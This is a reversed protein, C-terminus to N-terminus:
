DYDVGVLTLGRAPAAGRSQDRDRATLMQAGQEVVVYLGAPLFLIVAISAVMVGTKGWYFRVYRWALYLLDKM